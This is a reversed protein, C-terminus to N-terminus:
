LRAFYRSEWGQRNQSEWKPTEFCFTMRIGSGRPPASYVIHPFTTAEGSDLSHHTKHTWPQMHNMRAGFTNWSQALWSIQQNQALKSSHTIQKDSKKTGGWFELM